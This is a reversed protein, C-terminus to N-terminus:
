NIVYVQYSFNIGLGPYTFSSLKVIFYKTNNSHILCAITREFDCSSALRSKTRDCLVVFIYGRNV